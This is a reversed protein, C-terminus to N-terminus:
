SAFVLASDCFSHYLVWSGVTYFVLHGIHPIWVLDYTKWFGQTVVRARGQATCLAERRAKPLIWEVQEQHDDWLVAMELINHDEASVPSYKM